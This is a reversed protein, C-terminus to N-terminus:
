YCLYHQYSSLDNAPSEHLSISLGRRITSSRSSLSSFSSGRRSHRSRIQQRLLQSNIQIFRTLYQINLPLPQYQLFYILYSTDSIEGTTRSTGEQHQIGLENRRLNRAEKAKEVTELQPQLSSTLPLAVIM